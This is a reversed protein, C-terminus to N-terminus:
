LKKEEFSYWKRYFFTYKITYTIWPPTPILINKEQVSISTHCWSSKSMAFIQNCETYSFFFLMFSHIRWCYGTCCGEPSWLPQPLVPALAIHVGKNFDIIEVFHELNRPVHSHALLRPDIPIQEKVMLAVKGWFELISSMHSLHPQKWFNFSSPYSLHSSSGEKNTQWGHSVSLWGCPTKCCM